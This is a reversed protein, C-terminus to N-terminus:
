IGPDAGTRREFCAADISRQAKRMRALTRHVDLQAKVKSGQRGDNLKVDGNRDVDQSLAL